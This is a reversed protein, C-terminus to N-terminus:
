WFSCERPVAHMLVQSPSAFLDIKLKDADRARTKFLLAVPLTRKRVNFETGGAVRLAGLHVTTPHESACYNCTRAILMVNPLRAILAGSAIASLDDIDALGVQLFYKLNLALHWQRGSEPEGSPDPVSSVDPAEGASDRIM